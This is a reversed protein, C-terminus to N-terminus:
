HKNILELQTRCAIKVETSARDRYDPERLNSEDVESKFEAMLMRHDRCAAIIHLGKHNVRNFEELIHNGVCDTTSTVIISHLM